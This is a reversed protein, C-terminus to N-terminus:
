RAGGNSRSDLPWNESLCKKPSFPALLRFLVFLLRTGLAPRGTEIVDKLVGVIMKGGQLMQKASKTGVPLNSVTLTFQVGGDVPELEYTVTSPPDDYNTFQFTHSFKRYPIVELIEGVVGTWKGDPSRMALRHGPALQNVHMRNNFFCAIPEDTRTIENWVDEVSGQILVRFMATSEPM